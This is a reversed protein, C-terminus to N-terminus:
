VHARGIQSGARHPPWLLGAAHGGAVPGNHGGCRAPDGSRARDVSAERRWAPYGADRGRGRRAASLAYIPLPTTSPFLTSRPPRRIMLFFFFFFLFSLFIFFFLIIMSCILFHSIISM